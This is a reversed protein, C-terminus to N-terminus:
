LLYSLVQIHELVFHLGKILATIHSWNSSRDKTECMEALEKLLKQHAAKLEDENGLSSLKLLTVLAFELIRGLYDMDLKGSNLM